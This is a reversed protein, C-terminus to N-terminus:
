LFIQFIGVTITTYWYNINFDQDNYSILYFIKNYLIINSSFQITVYWLIYKLLEFWLELWARGIILLRVLNSIDAVKSTFPAVVSAEAESLSLGVDAKKLATWDNAGDGCMGILKGTQKQLEEVLMAKANPSMRSYVKGSKLFKDLVEQSDYGMYKEKNILLCLSTNYHKEMEHLSLNM